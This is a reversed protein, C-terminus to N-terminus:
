DEESKGMENKIHQLVFGKAESLTIGDIIGFKLFVELAVRHPYIGSKGKQHEEIWQMIKDTEM